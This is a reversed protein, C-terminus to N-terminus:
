FIESAFAVVGDTRDPALMVPITEGPIDSVLLEEVGIPREESYAEARLLVVGAVAAALVATPVLARAWSAVVDGVTLEAMLRRRALEGAAASLVWGRFRVWYHPDQTAPDLAQLAEALAMDRGLEDSPGTAKRFRTSM